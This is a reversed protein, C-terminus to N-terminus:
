LAFKEQAIVVTVEGELLGETATFFGKSGSGNNHTEMAAADTFREFTTFLCPDALDQTVHFGITDPEHEKAFAGVVQLAELVAAEAGEKARIIATLTQM